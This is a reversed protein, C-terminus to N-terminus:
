NGNYLSEDISFVVTKKTKVGKAHRELWRRFDVFYHSWEDLSACHKRNLFYDLVYNEFWSIKDKWSNPASEKRYEIFEDVLSVYNYYKDHWSERKEKEKVRTDFRSELVPLYEEMKEKDTSKIHKWYKRPVTTLKGSKDRYRFRYTINGSKNKDPAINM